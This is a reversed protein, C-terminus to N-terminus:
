YEKNQVNNVGCCTIKYIDESIKEPKIHEGSIKGYKGGTLPSPYVMSFNINPFVKDYSLTLLQLGTKAIVYPLIKKYPKLDGAGEFGVNIVSRLNVSKLFFSIIENAVILNGHFDSSIDTSTIDQTNKYTIPGYNNILANCQKLKNKNNKLFDSIKNLTSFDGPLWECSGSDRGRNKHYHAFVFWGGNIFREVLSRGLLGSAGTILIKNKDNM